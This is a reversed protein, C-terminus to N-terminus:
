VLLDGFLVTESRWVGLRRTVVLDLKPFFLAHGHIAAVRLLQSDPAEDGDLGRETVLELALDDGEIAGGVDDDNLLTRFASATM